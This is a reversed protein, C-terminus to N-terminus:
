RTATQRNAPRSPGSRRASGALSGLVVHGSLDGASILDALVGAGSLVSQGVAFVGSAAFDALAASGSMTTASGVVITATALGLDIGDVFLEYTFTYSGDPAGLLSFSGDEWAFFTGAGPVTVILGRIEKTADAPLSLDNYLYSPGHVGTSPIAYGLVGLGVEGVVYAGPILEATDIRLSM